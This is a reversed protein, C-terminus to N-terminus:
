RHGGKSRRSGSAPTGTRRRAARNSSSGHLRTRSRASVTSIMRAGGIAAGTRPDFNVRARGGRAALAARDYALAAAEEDDFLGLHRKSGRHVITAAFKEAARHFSVGIYRSSTREKRESRANALITEADAPRTRATPLSLKAGKGVYFLAARDHARAADRESAWRGLPFRKGNVTISASWARDSVRAADFSVGEYRSSRDAKLTARAEARMAAPSTPEHRQRPLNLRSSSPRLFREVRDHVIAAAKRTAFNGLFVLKRDRSVYAGWTGNKSPYVGYLGTKTRARTLATAQKRLKAPSAPGLRRSARPFRLPLDLRYHLVARDRAISAARATPWRGLSHGRLSAQHRKPSVRWSLIM